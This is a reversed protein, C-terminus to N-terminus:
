SILYLGMSDKGGNLPLKLLGEVFAQNRGVLGPLINDSTRDGGIQLMSRSGNAQDSGRSMCMLVCVCVTVAKVTRGVWGGTVVVCSQEGAETEQIIKRAQDWGDM